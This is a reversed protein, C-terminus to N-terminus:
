THLVPKLIADSLVDLVPVARAALALKARGAQVDLVGQDYGHPSVGVVPNAPHLFNRPVGLHTDVNGHDHGNKSKTTTTTTTITTTPTRDYLGGGGGSGTDATNQRRTNLVEHTQQNTSEIHCTAFCACAPTSSKLVKMVIGHIIPGSTCSFPPPPHLCPSIQTCIGETWCYSLIPLM